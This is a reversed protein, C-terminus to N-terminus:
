GKEGTKWLDQGSGVLVIKAPIRSLIEEPRSHEMNFVPVSLGAHNPQSLYSSRNAETLYPHNNGKLNHRITIFQSLFLTPGAM